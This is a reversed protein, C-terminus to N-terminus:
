FRGPWSSPMSCCAHGPSASVPFRPSCSPGSPPWPCPLSFARTPAPPSRFLETGPSTTGRSCRPVWAWVTAFAGTWLWALRVERSARHGFIFCSAAALTAAALKVVVDIDTTSRHYGPHSAMWILFLGLVIAAIAATAGFRRIAGVDPEVPTEPAPPSSGSTDVAPTDARPPTGETVTDATDLAMIRTAGASETPGLTISTSLVTSGSRSSARPHGSPRYWIIGRPAPEKRPEGTLRESAEGQRTGPTPM